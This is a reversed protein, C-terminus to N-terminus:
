TPTRTLDPVYVIYFQQPRARHTNLKKKKKKLAEVAAIQLYKKVQGTVLLSPLCTTRLRARAKYSLNNQIYLSRRFEELRLIKLSLYSILRLM